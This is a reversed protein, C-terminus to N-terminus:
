FHMIKKFSQALTTFLYSFFYKQSFVISILFFRTAVNMLAKLNREYQLSISQDNILDASLQMLENLNTQIMEEQEALFFNKIMEFNAALIILGM